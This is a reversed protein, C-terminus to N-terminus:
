CCLFEILHNKCTKLMTVLFLTTQFYPRYFKEKKQKIFIHQFANCRGTTLASCFLFLRVVVCVVNNRIQNVEKAIILFLEFPLRFFSINMITFFVSSVLFQNTKLLKKSNGLSWVLFYHEPLRYKRSFVLTLNM